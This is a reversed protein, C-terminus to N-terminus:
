STKSRTDLSDDQVGIDKHRCENSVAVAIFKQLAADNLVLDDKGLENQLFQQIDQGSLEVEGLGICLSGNTKQPRSRLKDIRDWQRNRDAAIRFIVSDQCGGSRGLTDGDNRAIFVQGIEM